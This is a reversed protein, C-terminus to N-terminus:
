AGEKKRFPTVVGNAPSQACYRAWDQMLKRRKEILKGRRYAAEVKDAVGHFLAAESVINEYGTCEAAWDKFSSRFGHVTHSKGTMSQLLGRMAANSLGKGKGGGIFIHPNGDERPVLELIEIARDSLVAVKPDNGEIKVGARDPPVKWEKKAFDIEDWVAGIVAGTRTATLITFELALATPAQQHHSVRGRLEQVFAPVESYPLAEHHKVKALKSRKPLSHELNGKWAAPNDGERAEKAKAYDLVKEIRGRVRDATEPKATWIPKLIKLVLARDIDSVPLHGITEYAYTKLTNTWQQRHKPNRWGPSQAKIYDEAMKKFTTGKLRKAKSEEIPDIGDLVGRRLSAARERAESLLIDPYTGFGHWRPPRGPLTFQFLWSRTEYTSVQLWLGGGDSYRRPVDLPYREENLWVKEVKAGRKGVTVTKGSELRHPTHKVM